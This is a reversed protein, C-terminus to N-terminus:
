VASAGGPEATDHDKAHVLGAGRLGQRKAGRAGGEHSLGGTSLLLPSRSVQPSPSRRRPSM